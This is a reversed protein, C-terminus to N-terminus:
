RRDSHVTMVLMKANGGVARAGRASSGAGPGGGLLSSLSM